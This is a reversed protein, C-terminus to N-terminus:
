EAEPKDDVQAKAEALQRKLDAIEDRAQSLEDAAKKAQKTEEAIGKEHAKVLEIARLGGLELRDPDDAWGRLWRPLYAIEASPWQATAWAELREKKHAPVSFKLRLPREKFMPAADKISISVVSKGDVKTSVPEGNIEILECGVQIEPFEPALTQTGACSIGRCSSRCARPRRCWGKCVHACRGCTCEDKCVATCADNCNCVDIRTVFPWHDLWRDASREGFKIGLPQPNDPEEHREEGDHEEYEDTDGTLAREEWDKLAFCKNITLEVSGDEEAGKRNPTTTIYHQSFKGHHWCRAAAYSCYPSRNLMERETVPRGAASAIQQQLDTRRGRIWTALHQAIPRRGPNAHLCKRIMDACETMMGQPIKPRRHEIAVVKKFQLLSKGCDRWHWARRRTFVEWM